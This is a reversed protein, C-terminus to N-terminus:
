ELRQAATLRSLLEHHRAVGELVGFMVRDLHAAIRGGTGQYGFVYERMGALALRNKLVAIRAHAVVDRVRDLEAAVLVPNVGVSSVAHAIEVAIALIIQELGASGLPPVHAARVHM